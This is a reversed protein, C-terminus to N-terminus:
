YLRREVVHCIIHAITIHGEQIRATETASVIIAVDSIEKMKGGTNGLLSIVKMKKDKAVKIARILNESNGSTSIAWFV